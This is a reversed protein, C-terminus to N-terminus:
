NPLSLKSKRKMEEEQIKALEREYESVLTQRAHDSLASLTPNSQWSIADRLAQERIKSRSVLTRRKSTVLGNDLFAFEGHYKQQAEQYAASALEPSPFSGLFVRKGGVTIDATWRTGRVGEVFRVGKIGSSTKRPSKANQSNQSPTAVRINERRNDLTNHNKHDGQRRDGFELGLIQRHM